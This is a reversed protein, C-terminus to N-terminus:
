RGLSSKLFQLQRGIAMGEMPVRAHVLHAMLHERYRAGALIIFADRTLDTRMNLSHLVGAAWARRHTASMTSLTQEYPEVMDGPELVGYKASLIFIRDPRLRRAYAMNFRFLPSTYLSAAPARIDLKQSVCSILINVFQHPAAQATM